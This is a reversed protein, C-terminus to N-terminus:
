KPQTAKIALVYKYVADKQTESLRAKLSMDEIIEKWQTENRTYINTTGHCQICAGVTYIYHGEQLQSMTADKYLLQIATLEESGPQYMGLPAKPVMYM